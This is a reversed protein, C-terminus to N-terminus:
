WDSLFLFDSLSSKNFHRTILPKPTADQFRMKFDMLNYPPRSTIFKQDLLTLSTFYSFNQTRRVWVKTIKWPEQSASAPLLTWPQAVRQVTIETIKFEFEIERGGREKMRKKWLWAPAPVHEPFYLTSSGQGKEEECWFAKKYLILPIFYGRFWPTM